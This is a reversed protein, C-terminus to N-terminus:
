SLITDSDIKAVKCINAFRYIFILNQSMSSFTGYLWHMFYLGKYLWSLVLLKRWISQLECRCVKHYNNRYVLRRFKFDKLCCSILVFFISNSCKNIFFQLTLTQHKCSKLNYSTFQLANPSLKRHQTSKISENKLRLFETM